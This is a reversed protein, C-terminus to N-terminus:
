KENRTKNKETEVNKVWQEYQEKPMDKYGIAEIEDYLVKLEKEILTM